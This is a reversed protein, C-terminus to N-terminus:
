PTAEGSVKQAERREEGGPVALAGSGRQRLSALCFGRPNLRRCVSFSRCQYFKSGGAVGRKVGICALLHHRGLRRRGNFLPFPLNGLRTGGRGWLVEGALLFVDVLCPLSQSRLHSSRGFGPLPKAWNGESPPFNGDVSKPSRQSMAKAVFAREREAEASPASHQSPAIGSFCWDEPAALLPM